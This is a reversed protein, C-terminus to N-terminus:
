ACFSFNSFNKIECVNWISVLHSKLSDTSLLFFLNQRKPSWSCNIFIVRIPPCNSNIRSKKQQHMQRPLWAACSTITNFKIIVSVWNRVNRCVYKCLARTDRMPISYISLIISRSHHWHHFNGYFTRLEFWQSSRILRMRNFSLKFTYCINNTIGNSMSQGKKIVNRRFFLSAFFYYIMCTHVYTRVYPQTCSRFYKRINIKNFSLWGLM